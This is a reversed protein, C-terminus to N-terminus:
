KSSLLLSFLARSLIKFQEERERHWGKTPEMDDIKSSNRIKIETKPVRPMLKLM